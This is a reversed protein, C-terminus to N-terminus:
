DFLLWYRASQTSTLRRCFGFAAQELMRAFSQIKMRFYDLCAQAVTSAIHTNNMSKEVVPSAVKVNTLQHNLSKALM